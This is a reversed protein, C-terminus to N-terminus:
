TEAGGGSQACAGQVFSKEGEDNVEKFTSQFQFSVVAEREFIDDEWRYYLRDKRAMTKVSNNDVSFKSLVLIYDYKFEKPNTIDDQKMTFELDAPLQEHLNPVVDVPMNVLRENVLLGVNKTTMIQVFMTHKSTSPSYKEAKAISYNFISKLFAYKSKEWTLSLISIFGYVDRTGNLKLCVKEFEADSLGAYQPDVEPDQEALSSAIVSGISARALINDAMGSVDLTEQEEGDIYQLLLTRVIHFYPESPSVYEFDVNIKGSKDDKNMM